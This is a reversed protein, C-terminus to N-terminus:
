ALRSVLRMWNAAHPSHSAILPVLHTSRCVQDLGPNSNFLQALFGLNLKSNGKVIDGAKLLPEVGALAVLLTVLM